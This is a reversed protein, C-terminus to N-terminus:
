SSQNPSSPHRRHEDDTHNSTASETKLNHSAFVLLRLICALHNTQHLSLTDILPHLSSLHIIFTIHTVPRHITSSGRPHAQYIPPWLFPIVPNVLWKPLQYVHGLSSSCSSSNWAAPDPFSALQPITQRDSPHMRMKCPCRRM